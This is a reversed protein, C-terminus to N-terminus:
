AARRTKGRRSGQLSRIMEDQHLIIQLFIRVVAKLSLEGTDYPESLEPPPEYFLRGDARGLYEQAIKRNSDAFHDLIDRRTQPSLSSRKSFVPKYEKESLSGHLLRLLERPFYSREESFLSNYVAIMEQVDHNFSANSLSSDFSSKEPLELGDTPQLGAADLFDLLLGQPLQEQEYVRVVMNETGFADAWPALRQWYDGREIRSQMFEDFTKVPGSSTKHKVGWQQYSSEFWHDQRRLYVIVKAETAGAASRLMQATDDRIALAEWSWVARTLKKSKCIAFCKKLREQLLQLKQPKPLAAMKRALGATDQQEGSLNELSVGTHFYGRAMLNGHNRYLMQQIATTGTKGLGIHFYFKELSM